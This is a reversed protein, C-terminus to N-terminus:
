RLRVVTERMCEDTETGVGVVWGGLCLHRRMLFAGCNSGMSVGVVAGRVM